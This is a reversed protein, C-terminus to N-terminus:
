GGGGPGSNDGGGGPGSNDDDGGGPGSNDDDSEAPEPTEIEDDDDSGTPSPSPTHTPSTTPTTSPSPSVSPSPSITSSPSPTTLIPPPSSGVNQRARDALDGLAMAGVIAAVVVAAAALLRAPTRFPVLATSVSAWWGVPEADIADRIRSSLAPPPADASAAAYDELERAISELSTDDTGLETPDFPNRTM